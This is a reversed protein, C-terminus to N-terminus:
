EHQVTVPFKKVMKFRKTKWEVTEMRQQDKKPLIRMNILNFHPFLGCIHQCRLFRLKCCIRLIIDFISSFSPYQRKVLIRLKPEFVKLTAANVREVSKSKPRWCCKWNEVFANVSDSRSFVTSRTNITGWFKPVFNLIWFFTNVKQQIPWTASRLLFQELEEM